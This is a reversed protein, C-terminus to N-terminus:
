DQGSGRPAMLGLLLGRLKEESADRPAERAAAVLQDLRLLSVGVVPPDLQTEVNPPVVIMARESNAALDVARKGIREANWYAGGGAFAPFILAREAGAERIELDPRAGKSRPREYVATKFDNEVVSKVVAEFITARIGRVLSRAASLYEDRKEKKAFRFDGPRLGLLLRAAIADDKSLYRDYQLSGISLFGEWHGRVEFGIVNKAVYALKAELLLQLDIIKEDDGKPADEEETLGVTPAKEMAEDARGFEAGVGFAKISRLSAIHSMPVAILIVALLLAGAAFGAEAEAVVGALTLAALAGLLVVALLRVSWDMRPSLESGTPMPEDDHPIGM